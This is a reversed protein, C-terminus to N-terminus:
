QEGANEGSPLTECTIGLDNSQSSLDVLTDVKAPHEITMRVQERVAPLRFCAEQFCTPVRVAFVRNQVQERDARRRMRNRGRRPIRQPAITITVFSVGVERGDAHREEHVLVGVRPDVKTVTALIAAVADVVKLVGDGGRKRMAREAHIERM